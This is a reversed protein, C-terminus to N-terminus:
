QKRSAFFKEIEEAAVPLSSSLVKSGNETVLVVDEIRIGIGEDPLYIGPEVTVVMGTALPTTEDYPDHVDLGVHHGIGHTFYEGMPKGNKDKFKNLYETAVMHVTGAYKGRLFVGPKVAAIAAKQAGLVMEYLEKQRPTFKGGAPVTRTIDSAYMSCEAAVDMLVLQGQDVTSRNKSYHLIAGNPGAGVIPAYAHRECGQSFYTGAMETAIQYEKVGPRIMRWAERHADLTVDTARQILKLEAKSKVQRLRAIPLGVDAFERNRLTQKLADAREDGALTYIKKGSELWKPLMTEFSESAYINSFGTQVRTQADTPGLKPGTWREEDQDRRPILLNDETPTLVLIAGPEKWGTLYYFNAEQFFGDRINGHAEESAGFLITVADGNAERLKARRTKYEDASIGDALVPISILLALCSLVQVSIRRM